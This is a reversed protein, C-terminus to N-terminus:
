GRAPRRQPPQSTSFSRARAGNKKEFCCPEFRLCCCTSGHVPVSDLLLSVSDGISEVEHWMGRPLYILSGPTLEVSEAGDPLRTVLERSSYLWMEENYPRSTRVSYNVTPLPVQKNEAYRWRKTGTLQVTFNEIHDFHCGTVNKASSSFLSCLFTSTPRGLVQGLVQQWERITPTAVDPLFVTFGARHFKAADVPAMDVAQAHGNKDEFWVSVPGSQRRILAEVEFSELRQAPCRVGFRNAAGDM